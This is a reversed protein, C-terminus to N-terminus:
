TLQLHTRPDPGDALARAAKLAVLAELARAAHRVIVEIASAPITSQSGSGQDAYAVAVARGALVIPVAVCEHGAPLQAFPPAQGSVATMTRAADAVAGADELPVEISLPGDDASSSGTFRWPHLTTDRVVWVGARPAERAMCRVVADLVETLSRASDISRTADLLRESADVYPQVASGRASAAAAAAAADAHERAFSSLETAVSEFHKAVDERFREAISEFTHRLREDFTM